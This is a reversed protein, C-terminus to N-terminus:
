SAAERPHPLPTSATPTGSLRGERWRDLDSRRFWLKGGPTDQEFPLDRAATLQHFASRTIGLHEAATQGDLWGDPEPYELRETLRPALRAALEDLAQEDLAAVIAKPTTHGARAVRGRGVRGRGVRFKGNCSPTSHPASLPDPANLWTRSVV